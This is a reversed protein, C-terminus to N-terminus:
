KPLDVALLIEGHKLADDFEGLHVNPVKASFREGAIFTVAMVVIATLAGAVSAQWLSLLLGALAMGFVILNGKWLLDEVRRSVDNSQEEGAVPLDGLDIGDRAM